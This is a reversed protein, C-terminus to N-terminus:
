GQVDYAQSLVKRMQEIFDVIPKTSQGGLQTLARVDVPIEPTVKYKELNHAQESNATFSDIIAPGFGQEALVLALHHTHVTIGELPKQGLRSWQDAVIAGLSDQEDLRIFPTKLVEELAIEKEKFCREAHSQTVYMLRGNAIVEEHVAPHPRTGYVIGIDGEQLAIARAVENSHMTQITVSCQPHLEKFRILAQPLFCVSLSPVVLIRLQEENKHGLGLAIRRVSELQTMLAQVEPYLNLAEYTPALRNHLRTFLSYGLQLEAHQLTQTVAPQSVHLLRAAGSVTGTLMIANFVEIHKIRM